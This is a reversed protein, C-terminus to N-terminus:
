LKRKKLTTLIWISGYHVSKGPFRSTAEKLFIEEQTELLSSYFSKRTTWHTLSWTGWAPPGPEIGPRPVLDWVGCSLGPAALVFLYIFLYSKKSPRSHLIFKLLVWSWPLHRYCAGHAPPSVPRGLGRAWGSVESVTRPLATPLNPADGLAREPASIGQCYVCM